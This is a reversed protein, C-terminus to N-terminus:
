RIMERGALMECVAGRLGAYAHHSFFASVLSWIANFIGRAAWFLSVRHKPAQM